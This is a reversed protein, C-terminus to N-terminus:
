RSAEALGSIGPAQDPALFFLDRAQMIIFFTFRQPQNGAFIDCIM